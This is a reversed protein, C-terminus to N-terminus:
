KAPTTAEPKAGKAPTVVVEVAKAEAAEVKAETAANLLAANQALLDAMAKANAEQVQAMAAAVAQAVVAAIDTPQTAPTSTTPAPTAIGAQQAAKARLRDIATMTAQRVANPTAKAGKAAQWEAAQEAGVGLSALTDLWDAVAVAVSPDGSRKGAMLDDIISSALGMTVGEAKWGAIFLSVHEGNAAQLAFGRRGAVDPSSAPVTSLLQAILIAQSKSVPGNPNTLSRTM